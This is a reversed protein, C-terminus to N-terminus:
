AAGAPTAPEQGRLWRDAWATLLGAPDLAGFGAHLGFNREVFTGGDVGHAWPGVILRTGERADDTAGEERLARYSALTADLFLDYWGGVM